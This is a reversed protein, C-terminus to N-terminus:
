PSDPSVDVAPNTTLRNPGSGDPNMSYIDFNGDRNSEFAIKGNSLFTPDGDFATNNTRRTQGSGDTNMSYIEFNLDRNSTFFIQTGDLSWDPSSDIAASTTMRTQGSGDANMVYIDGNGTRASTFAIKTGDPSWSPEADVAASTTLRTQGSGDANMVYIDGNGSRFSTFAITTGDPSFAPLLDVAPSTTLRTQGSGDANMVYIDGNGTRSSEFAIKTGDASFAPTADFAPNTTLRTQGSGDPSMSYIEFNGDRNSAFALKAPRCDRVTFTATTTSPLWTYLQDTTRSAGPFDVTLTYSGSPHSGIPQLTGGGEISTGALSTTGDPGTITITIPTMPPQFGASDQIAIWVGLPNASSCITGLDGSGSPSAICDFQAPGEPPHHISTQTVNPCIALSARTSFIVDASAAPVATVVAVGTLVAAVALRRMKGTARLRFSSARTVASRIAPTM